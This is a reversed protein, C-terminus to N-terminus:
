VHARGIEPMGMAILSFYKAVSFDECDGGNSALMEVPSAWYDDKQWHKQDSVFELQNFFHNVNSLKKDPADFQHEQVLKQWDLVRALASKGYQASVQALLQASLELEAWAAATLVAAFLLPTLRLRCHVAVTRDM